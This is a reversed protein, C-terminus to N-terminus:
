VLWPVTSIGFDKARDADPMLVTTPASPLERMVEVGVMQRARPPERLASVFNDRGKTQLEM